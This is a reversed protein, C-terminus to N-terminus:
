FLNFFTQSIRKGVVRVKSVFDVLNDIIIRINGTVFKILEHQLNDFFM